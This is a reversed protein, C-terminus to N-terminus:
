RTPMVKKGRRLYHRRTTKPSDHGLLESAAQDDIEEAKDDAAKARLDYFWFAKIADALDPNEEAAQSRAAEFHNRLVAKTLQMGRTNLLLATHVVKYKKKRTKIRDILEALEGVVAIRLPQKTKGQRVSLHGDVIDHETSKLADAPRQATLFALDMADRLPESGCKWVANFVAETTYEERKGLSFGAIGTCPNTQDTYGWARGQNWMASFLRKCRNATTPKDKHLQLFQHMHMPRIEDLPAADFFKDLHKIDSRNVRQTNEAKAPIEELRYRSSLDNWKPQQAPKEVGALEVYKRLAEIYDSGLPVEVRPKGGQDFYYYIKGGAKARPRMHPPMNKNITPKRGM